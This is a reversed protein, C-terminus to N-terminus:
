GCRRRWLGSQGRCCGSASAPMCRLRAVDKAVASHLRAGRGQYEAGDPLQGRCGACFVMEARAATAVKRLIDREFWRRPPVKPSRLVDYM